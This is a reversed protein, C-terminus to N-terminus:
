PSQGYGADSLYNACETSTFSEVIAGIRRWLTEHHRPAAKRLLAKLKAFAQEIPNQDPSYPPLLIFEAGCSQVANRVSAVKHSPLNDAM